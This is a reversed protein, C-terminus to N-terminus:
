CPYGQMEKKKTPSSRRSYIKVWNSGQSIHKKGKELSDVALACKTRMIKLDYSIQAM